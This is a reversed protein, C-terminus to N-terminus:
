RGDNAFANEPHSADTFERFEGTVVYATQEGIDVAHDGIRELCRSVLIMRLGWERLTPDSGLAIVDHVLRRNAADILEDLDVLREAEALDREAFSGLAVRVMEEARAGMEDLGQVLAKDGTLAHALKTLKAVTTCYDAMRELHLNVHLMGLVLRLDGAVPTQRALLSQIGDQVEFYVRDVDDDFAIVDDALEVDERRLARMAGRLSRLVLAGERQLHEELTALEEQFRVRM